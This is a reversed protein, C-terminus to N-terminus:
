EADDEKEKKKASRCILWVRIALYGAFVAAIGVTVAGQKFGAKSGRRFGNVFGGGEVHDLMNNIAKAAEESAATFVITETGDAAIHIFECGRLVLKELVTKAM